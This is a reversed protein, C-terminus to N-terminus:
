GFADEFHESPPESRFTLSESLIIQDSNDTRPRVVLFIPTPQTTEYVLRCGIRVTMPRAPTDIAGLRSQALNGLPIRRIKHLAKMFISRSFAGGLQSTKGM